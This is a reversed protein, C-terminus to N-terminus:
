LTASYFEIFRTEILFTIIEPGDIPTDCRPRPFRMSFNKSLLSVAWHYDPEIKTLRHHKSRLARIFRHPSSLNRSQQSPAGNGITITQTSQNKGLLLMNFQTGTKPM